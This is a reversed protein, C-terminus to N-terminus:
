GGCKRFVDDPASPPSGEPFAAAAGTEWLDAAESRLADGDRGAAKEAQYATEGKAYLVTYGVIARRYKEVAASLDEIGPGSEAALQEELSALAADVPALLEATAPAPGNDIFASLAKDFATGAACTARIATQLPTEPAASATPASASVTPTAASASETPATGGSNDSGGCGAILLAAITLGLMRNM